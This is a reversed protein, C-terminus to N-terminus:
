AASGFLQQRLALIEASRRLLRPPFTKEDFKEPMLFISAPDAIRHAMALQHLLRRKSSSLQHAACLERFLLGPSHQSWWGLARGLFTLLLVLIGITAGIALFILLDRVTLGQSNQLRKSISLVPNEAQSLISLWQM